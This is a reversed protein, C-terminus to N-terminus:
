EKQVNEKGNDLLAADGAEELEKTKSKELRNEFKDLRKETDGYKKSANNLHTGLLIFDGRVKRFEIELRKLNELIVKANEEIKMGKLGMVITSLYAYLTNPSVPIVRKGTSYDFLKVEGFNHSVIEHYVNEAPIYMLAFDVTGEDPLIYKKAISDIHKKVDSYFLRSYQLRDQEGAESGKRFNELPFKSDIPVLYDKLRVVADVKEGSKFTYQIEYHDGSFIQALLNELLFEGMVGRLKPARLIDQLSSINKGVEHMQKVSEQVQVLQKQVEGYSRSANDLRNTNEGLRQDISKQIMNLNGSLLQIQNTINSIIESSEKESEREGSQNLKRRLSLITMALIAAVVVLVLVIVYTFPM